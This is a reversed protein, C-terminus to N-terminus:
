LKLPRSPEPEVTLPVAIEGPPLCNEEDCAQYSVVLTVTEGEKAGTPRALSLDIWAHGSLQYVKMGFGPDDREQPPSSKLPGALKVGTKSRVTVGIPMPGAGNENLVAVPAYVHYPAAIDLQLRVKTPKDAALRIVAPEAHIALVEAAQTSLGVLSWALGWGLWRRALSTM